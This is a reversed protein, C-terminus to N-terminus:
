INIEVLNLIISNFQKQRLLISRDKINKPLYCDKTNIDLPCFYWFKQKGSKFNSIQMPTLDKNLHFIYNQIANLSAKNDKMNEIKIIFNKTESNKIYNVAKSYEPKSPIREKYFQKITQETFHNGITLFALLIILFYKHKKNEYNFILNSLLLIIPILNFMTHRPLLMPKFLYGFVIPILYSFVIIIFFLTYYNIEMIKKFNKIILYLFVILFVGGVLRSGFYNSFHFNTYFKLSPNEMFWYYDADSNTTIYFLQYYYFASFIFVVLFVSLIPISLKKKFILELFLYFSLSFFILFGFPHLLINFLFILSFFFLLIYNKKNELLKIFFILTLSTVFFLLTYNRLEQSYGILFINLSILFSSLLYSNSNKNLKKDLYIITFISLVGWFASFIRGSFVSYDFIKFYNKLIINYLISTTEIQNHFILSEKFSFNPNAVWFSIIEDYWLDDFSVNYFRFLTGTAIILFLVIQKNFSLLM